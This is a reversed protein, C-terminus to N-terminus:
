IKTLEEEIDYYTGEM